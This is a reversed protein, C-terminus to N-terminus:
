SKSVNELLKIIATRDPHNPKDKLELAFELPTKGRSRDKISPNANYSLLLEVASLDNELVATHLATIGSRQDIANIDVGKKLLFGVLKRRDDEDETRIVWGVGIGQNLTAIEKPKDGFNFLYTQCLQKPILEDNGGSCLLLAEFDTLTKVAVYGWTGAVSLFILASLWFIIKTLRMM